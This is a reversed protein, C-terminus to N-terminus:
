RILKRRQSASEDIWLLFKGVESVSSVSYDALDILGQPTGDHNVVIGIAELPGDNQIDRVARMGDIDTTDDGIFILSELSHDRALARVAHGKHLGTRGRIELVLNGWFVDLTNVEPATELASELRREAKELDRAKRTHITVSFGKDEWFLGEDEAVPIVHKLVADIRDRAEGAGDVVRYEGDSIYEAGHNGVYIIGDINMRKAVNRGGRGSVVAVLSLQRVLSPLAEAAAPHLVAEDSASVFDSLTGDYDLVLGFRPGAVLPAVDDLHDFLPQPGINTM